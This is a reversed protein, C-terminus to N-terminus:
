KFAFSHSLNFGKERIATELVKDLNGKVEVLTLEHRNLSVVFLEKLESSNNVKVYVGTVENNNRSRVVYQWGNENMHSNIDQLLQFGNDLTCGKHSKYVGVQVHSINDLIERADQDNDDMKVAIKAISIGFSGISLEVDTYYSNDTFSLIKNKLRSFNGDVGFCGVFLTSSFLIIIFPSITLFKKM